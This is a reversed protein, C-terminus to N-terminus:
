WTGTTVMRGDITVVAVFTGVIKTVMLVSASVSRNIGVIAVISIETGTIKTSRSNSTIM